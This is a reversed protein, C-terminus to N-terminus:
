FGSTVSTLRTFFTTADDMNFKGSEALYMANKAVRLFQQKDTANAYMQKFQVWEPDAPVLDFEAEIASVSPTGGNLLYMELAAGFAHIGIKESGRGGVLGDHFSM